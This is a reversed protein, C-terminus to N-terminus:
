HAEVPTRLAELADRTNMWLAGGASRHHSEHGLPLACVLDPLRNGAHDKVILVKGCTFDEM